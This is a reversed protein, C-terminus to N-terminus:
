VETGDNVEHGVDIDCAHRDVILPIEEEAAKLTLVTEADVAGSMCKKRAIVLLSDVEAGADSLVVVEEGENVAAKEDFVAEVDMTEGIWGDVIRCEEVCVCWWDTTERDNVGHNTRREVGVALTGEDADIVDRSIGTRALGEEAMQVACTWGSRGEGLGEDGVADKLGDAGTAESGADGFLDEPEGM